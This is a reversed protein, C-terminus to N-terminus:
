AGHKKVAARIDGVFKGVERLYVGDQWRAENNTVPVDYKEAIEFLAEVLTDAEAIAQDKDTDDPAPKSM